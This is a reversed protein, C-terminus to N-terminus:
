MLCDDPLAVDFDLAWDKGFWAGPARSEPLRNEYPHGQLAGVELIAFGQDDYPAGGEALVLARAAGLGRNEIDFPDVGEERLVRADRGQPNKDSVAAAERYMLAPDEAFEIFWDDALPSPTDAQENYQDAFMRCLADIRQIAEDLNEANGAYRWQGFRQIVGIMFFCLFHGKIAQASARDKLYSVFAEKNLPRTNM